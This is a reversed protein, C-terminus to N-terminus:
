VRAVVLSGIASGCSSVEVRRATCRVRKADSRVSIAHIRVLVDSIVNPKVIKLNKWYRADFSCRWVTTLGHITPIAMITIPRTASMRAQTCCRWSIFANFTSTGSMGYEIAPAMAIM